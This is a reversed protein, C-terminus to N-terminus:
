LGFFFLARDKLCHNTNPPFVFPHLKPLTQPQCPSFSPFGDQFPHCKWPDSPLSATPCAPVAHTCCPLSFALLFSEAPLRRFTSWACVFATLGSPLSSASCPPRPTRGASSPAREELYSPLWPSALSLCPASTIFLFM